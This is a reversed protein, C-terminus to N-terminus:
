KKIFAIQCGHPLRLMEIKDWYAHIFSDVALKPTNQLKENYWAVCDDCLMVGGKKLIKFGLIMDELVTAARHDGDVYILDAQVGRNYLEMLGEWSTKNLFEVNDKYPFEALNERFRVGAKAVVDEEIDDSEGHPDIAYHKYDPLQQAFFGTMNFTTHGEFVGIEIVTQPIGFQQVLWSISMETYDHFVTDFKM